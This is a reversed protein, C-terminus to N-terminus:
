HFRRVAEVIDLKGDYIASGVVAGSVGVEELRALDSMTTVGGAAVVPTRVAEVLRRVIKIDTGIMRGELIVNTFLFAALGLGDVSRAYEFLNKGSGTKWGKILIEEGRTDVALVVKGAHGAAIKKLWDMDLIAKTGVIVRDAGMDLFMDVTGHDRIGGGIQVPISMEKIIRKVIDRNHGRDLASDLDIVHLYRAGKDQIERAVDLPDGYEARMRKEDGGILQVCKGGLIDVAPIVMM